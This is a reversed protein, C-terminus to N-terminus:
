LIEKKIKNEFEDNILYDAGLEKLPDHDRECFGVHLHRRWGEAHTFQKSMKGVALSLEEMTNLYSNFKQSIDLWNQQSQHAKLAKLKVDFVSTTNVFAGAEIPQRLGDCLTHPLAHYITCDYNGAQREPITQYNPMGRAFCATVALRSTNMHDEMYDSPSHTLVISPQVERIIGALTRLTKNDYFIELDNCFPPHFKAGLIGAAEKAEDYRIKILSESDYVVSGVNGSSLNLYHTEYGQRKLQVLTGAMMLEIDDPHAAIAIATKM